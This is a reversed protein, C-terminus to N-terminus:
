LTGLLRGRIEAFSEFRVMQGDKFVPKLLGQQEQDRTQNDYLVFNDGEKEVRLLGRASHKTGDDTKPCKFIARDEGNVTGFTAKIATGFTDRTVHQYTWSGVGFVINGSSFGKAELGAIIRQAIDLTISDGYILGVHSDLTVHGTSTQTGGFIDFLCQVAGRNAPSGEPSEPDGVIIKVPDGSDPRFVVKGERAMIEDKMASAYTTMVQWFDWTDSVISVVGSPYLKLMRRFTEIEDEEGGMCMVAHETAPVSGGILGEAGYYDEVYDIAPITDTGTFSLLHAAGSMIADQYGSMGRFSFDHGQWPVFELATGTKIAAAQLLRRYEFATTANTISKWLLASLVTELYNTLWYFDPHTNQITYLPVRVNVRSGEPLAKILVPLYGLDHLQGMREVDVAGPGLYGDMRRQYRDVVRSRKAAFFEDYWVDCLFWQCIGQLGFWVVKHDYGPAGLFHKDSRPTFNSCVFSTGDPFQIAHGTKYGDTLSEPRIKM